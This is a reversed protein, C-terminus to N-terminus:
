SGQEKRYSLVYVSNREAVQYLLHLNRWEVEQSKIIELVRPEDLLPLYYGEQARHGCEKREGGLSGRDVLLHHFMIM